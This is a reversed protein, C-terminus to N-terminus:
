INSEKSARDHCGALGFTRIESPEAISVPLSDPEILLIAGGHRVSAVLSAIAAQADTLHHLVALQSSTSGREIPAALIDGQRFEVNTGGADVLSLDLDLAVVRGGRAAREGLWASISGNGCGVELARTGPGVGLKM